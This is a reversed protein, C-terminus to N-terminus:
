FGNMFDQVWTPNQNTILFLMVIYGIIIATFVIMLSKTPNFSDIIFRTPENEAYIIGVKSGKEPGQKPDLNNASKQHIEQGLYTRFKIVPYYYQRNNNAKQIEYDTIEGTAKLGNKKLQTYSWYARGFLILLLTEVLTIILVIFGIAM